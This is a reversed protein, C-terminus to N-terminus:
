HCRLNTKQFFEKNPTISTDHQGQTKRPPIHKLSENWSFLLHHHEPLPIQFGPANLPLIQFLMDGLSVHNKQTGSDTGSMGPIMISFLSGGKCPATVCQSTVIVSLM